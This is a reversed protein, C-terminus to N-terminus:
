KSSMTTLTISSYQNALSKSLIKVLWKGNKDQSTSFTTWSYVGKEYDFTEGDDNYLSINGPKNGYCRLELNMKDNKGPTHLVAPIMPIIGGDKVYLPIHSLGPEIVITENEGAYQGTYFDYWKGPPLIVKRKKDGAFMPAVLLNDGLMFQDIVDEKSSFGDVLNMSRVPPKGEFYYQAFTTYIYPFLQMRLEAVAKVDKEVDPFSWPKTGDSWANLMAMPSFCVSQMRRLWEESTKSARVEPTWL